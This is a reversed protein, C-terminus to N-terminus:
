LLSKLTARGPGRKRGCTGSMKKRADVIKMADIQKDDIEDGDKGICMMM